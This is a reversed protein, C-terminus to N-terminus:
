AESGRGAVSARWRVGSQVGRLDHLADRAPERGVSEVDVCCVVPRAAELAARHGDVGLPARRLLSATRQRTVLLCSM